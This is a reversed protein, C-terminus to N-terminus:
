KGPKVAASAQNNVLPTPFVVSAAAIRPDQHLRDTVAQYFRTQAASDYQSRPLVIQQTIVGATKFGVDVRQLALLRKVMVGAGAETVFREIRREYKHRRYRAWAHRAIPLARAHTAISDRLRRTLAM